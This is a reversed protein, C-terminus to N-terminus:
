VTLPRIRCLGCIIYISMYLIYSLCFTLLMKVLVGPVYYLLCACDCAGSHRSICNSADSPVPFLVSRRPTRSSLVYRYIINSLKHSYNRSNIDMLGDLLLLLLSSFNSDFNAVTRHFYESSTVDEVNEAIM